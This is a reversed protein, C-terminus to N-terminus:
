KLFDELQDSLRVRRFRIDLAAPRALFAGWPGFVFGWLVWPRGLMGVWPVEFLRDPDIM